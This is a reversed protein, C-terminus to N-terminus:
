LGDTEQVSPCLGRGQNVQTAWQRAILIGIYHIKFNFFSYLDYHFQFFLLPACIHIPFQVVPVFLGSIM